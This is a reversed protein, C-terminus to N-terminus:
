KCTQYAITDVFCGGGGGGDDGDDVPAVTFGPAGLDVVMSDQMLIDDGRQADVFHITIINDNIEAGTEEDFLYEYWHDVQNPPTKGFKYYTGPTASSPLIMTLITSDGPIIGSITFDFFGYNFNIGSPADAPSPNGTAQCSSLTTGNPSVIVVYGQANYTEFGVVNNQLSDLTGDNNADGSNPGASETIDSIGDNDDDTDTNDGTGDEDTDLIESDDLPFADDVDMVGDNDDDTDSCDPTGDGDTDTEEIGCGCSGLDIKYPDDPCNDCVDGVTDNDTDTQSPNSTNPCNDDGDAITDGDSDTIVSSLSMNQTVTEGEGIIVNPYNSIVYGSAEGTFAFAGPRHVMLYSGNPLSIASANDNSKILAGSIPDGNEADTVTGIVFGSIPGIPNNVSLEYDTNEGVDNPDFQSIKVYYIGDQPCTWELVESEGKGVDDMNDLITAGDMDHLEIVADCNTGANNVAISYIEENVAYFKVWDQDGIDHFSHAQPAENNLVITNSQEFSDDIEYSDSNVVYGFVTEIPLSINGENDMAYAVVHYTGYTSLGSYSGEYRNNGNHNFEITSLGTIPNGPDGPDYDPPTIVAWVKDITGTTTVDEVWIIASSGASISQEPVISGILPDDGALLIGHGFRYNMALKGDSKENGVGNGDDDLMPIQDSYSFSTAKKAHLFSERVTAGNLVRAWYYKSFSIDGDWLFYAPQNDETSSILIREKGDPPILLPLFSGSRCADYIIAVKGPLTTQLTDLWADLDSAALTETTSIDFTGTDGNGVLYIVLDKTSDAAWTEIAYSLNSLTSLGDVGTSFTVPSMFYIDDDSYGQFSLAEYVLTANKEIAPWLDDAQAGGAVIIARRRLPNEVSVITIEPISTNGIRDRAYIAIQYTGEINFGDYTVEYKGPVGDVPMLDASPLEQVPNDPSGQNFDPSRIVAWVRAVGDDDTVNEAYLLASSTGTITQPEPINGIVPVDGYITTGNGIYTSEILTYDEAENAIGNGNADILPNQNPTTYGIAETAFDFANKVNVGNFIHTWFYNSFSISGQTIFYASEGPSTSTIVVREKDFPPTLSSVFSGSECADYIIVVKGPITVQLIDLWDDLDEASLTETGSMRFMGPGGHDVLYIVLSDADIAWDTIAAQLNTNTADGDVDDAEGNNDLDLNTNSTLYLITDKTFGQYTLARYAFNASLQTADWLNNGQFSGGGAVVLAKQNSKISVNKFVQIYNGYPEAIYIRNDASVAIDRASNLKGPGMGTTAFYTIPNFDSDYKAIVYENSNINSIYFNNINDIAISSGVFGDWRYQFQGDSTFKQICSNALDLIFVNDNDDIAIDTPQNFQGNGSGYSGWKTILQGDTTWKKIQDAADSLAYICNNNDVAIDMFVPQDEAVDSTRWETLFLGDTTFKQIRRNGSDTVYVFNNKYVALGYIVDFQGSNSGTNGWKKIFQGDPTFKQIRDNYADAVYVFGNEDLAVSEPRDFEGNDTGWSKWTEVLEGESSFKFLSHRVNSMDLVYVNDNSDVIIGTIGHNYPAVIGSTPLYWRNIFQGDITFKQIIASTPQTVYINDASDIALWTPFSLQGAETGSTGWQLIFQGDSAFKQICDNEPDAVYIFGSRDIAIGGIENRQDGSNTHLEWKAIFNGSNSFKQINLAQLDSIYLYNNTDIAINGPVLFQGDGSGYGGFSDIFHGSPSLKQISHKYDDAIYIFGESDIAIGNNGSIQGDLNGRNAFTSIFKGDSSFKRGGLLTCAFYLYDKNDVSLTADSYFHWPQQLTPWMREFTYTEQSLVTSPSLVPLSFITILLIHFKIFRKIDINPM